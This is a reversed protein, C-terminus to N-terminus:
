LFCYRVTSFARAIQATDDTSGNDVVLIESAAHSQDLVSQIAEALYKEGNHVPIIVSIEPADAVM